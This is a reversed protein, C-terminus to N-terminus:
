NRSKMVAIVSLAKQVIQDWNFFQYFAAPVSQLTRDSQTFMNDAFGQWDYDDVLVLKEGTIEQPIGKAGSRASICTQDYALADILKTKIGSGLTVPNIFCDAGKFYLSIDDVFGKFIIDPYSRLVKQWQDTIRNGCIFIRFLFQKAQLRLLLENIIIRLADTNPLYDLTGNFLFLRTAPDLKNEIILQERSTVREKKDLPHLLDAGYTIVTCRERSLRYHTIAWDLDEQSIFFSHDAKGHVWGEYWQYVRWLPKHMDRFRHAEINHSHIIFPKKSLWRLLIGLWGMYSHEICIVDIAQQKILKRLRFIYRLNAFGRKHHYLFPLVTYDNATSINEKEVALVLKAKKALHSYFNAVGKQGGMQAPFVKFSVIGLVSPQRM